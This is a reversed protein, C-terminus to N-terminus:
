PPCRSGTATGFACAGIAHHAPYGSSPTSRPRVDEVNPKGHGINAERIQKAQAEIQVNFKDEVDPDYFFITASRL